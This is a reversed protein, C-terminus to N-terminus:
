RRDYDPNMERVSSLPYDPEDDTYAESLRHSSLRLWADREEDNDPLVTVLLKADPKLPYAKDLRIHVGDFHAPLLIANM